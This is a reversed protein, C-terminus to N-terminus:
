SDYLIRKYYAAVNDGVNLTVLNTVDVDRFIISTTITWLGTYAISYLFGLVVKM